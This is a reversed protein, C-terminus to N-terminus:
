SECPCKVAARAALFLLAYVRMGPEVPAPLGHASLHMVDSVNPIVAISGGDWKTM